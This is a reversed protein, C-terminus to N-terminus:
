GVLAALKKRARKVTVSDANSMPLEMLRRRLARREALTLHHLSSRISNLTFTADLSHDVPVDKVFSVCKAWRQYKRAADIARRSVALADDHQWLDGAMDAVAENVYREPVGKSRAAAAYYSLRV